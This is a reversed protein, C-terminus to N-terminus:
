YAKPFCTVESIHKLRGRFVKAESVKSTKASLGEIREPVPLWHLDRLVPSIHDTRKAGSV